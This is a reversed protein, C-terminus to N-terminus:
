RKATGMRRHTQLAQYIVRIELNSLSIVQEVSRTGLYLSQIVPLNVGYRRLAMAFIRDESDSWSCASKTYRRLKPDLAPDFIAQFRRHM